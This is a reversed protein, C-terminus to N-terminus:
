LHLNKDLFQNTVMQSAKLGAKVKANEQKAVGSLSDIFSQVRATDFSGFVGDKGNAWIGYKKFQQVVFTAQDATQVTPSKMAGAANLIANVMPTPNNIFGIEAKQMMPILAKLCDAHDTVTSPKVVLSNEYSTYGGDSALLFDLPKGWAKNHEFNYGEDEAYSFLIDKGGSEVFRGISGDWSYDFQSAKVTGTQIMLASAADKGEALVTAGSDAVQKTSTFHYNKPDWIFAIPSKQNPAMVSVTPHQGSDLYSDDTNSETMFIESHLYMAGVPDENGIFPGGARVEVTIGGVQGSYTGDSSNVKGNPGVLAYDVAHEFEPYWTSQILLPNPCGAAALVGSSGGGSTGGGGSTAPPNSGGGSSSCAAALLGASLVTLTTYLRGRRRATSQMRTM